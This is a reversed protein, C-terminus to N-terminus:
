EANFKQKMSDMTNKIDNVIRTLESDVLEEYNPFRKTIWEIGQEPDDADAYKQFEVLEEYSLEEELRMAMSLQLTQLVQETSYEIMEAPIGAESLKHEVKDKDLLIKM